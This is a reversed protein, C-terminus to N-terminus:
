RGTSWHNSGDIDNAELVDIESGAEEVLKEIGEEILEGQLIAISDMLSDFQKARVQLQTDAAEISDELNRISDEVSSIKRKM